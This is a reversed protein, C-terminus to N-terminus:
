VDESSIHVLRTGHYRQRDFLLSWDMRMWAGWESRQHLELWPLEPTGQVATMTEVATYLFIKSAGVIRPSIVNTGHQLRFCRNKCAM